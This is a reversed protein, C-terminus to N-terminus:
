AAAATAAASFLMVVVVVVLYRKCPIELAPIKVVSSLPLVILWYSRLLAPHIKSDGVSLAWQKSVLKNSGYLVTFFSALQFFWSDSAVPLVWRTVPVRRESWMDGTSRWNCQSGTRWRTSKLTAVSTCWDSGPMEGGYRASSQRRTASVRSRRSREVALRVHTTVRVYLVKPSLANPAEPGPSHFLRGDCRLSALMDYLSNRRDCFVNRNPCHPWPV